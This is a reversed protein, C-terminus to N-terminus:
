AFKKRKKAVIVTFSVFGHAGSTHTTHQQTVLSFGILRSFGLVALLLPTLNTTKHSARMKRPAHEPNLNEFGSESKCYFPWIELVPKIASFDRRPNREKRKIAFNSFPNSFSNEQVDTACRCAYNASIVGGNVPVTKCIRKRIEWYFSLSPVGHFGSKCKNIFDVKLFM